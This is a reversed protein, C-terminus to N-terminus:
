LCLLIPCIKLSTKSFLCFFWCPRVSPIVSPRFSLRVPNLKYSWVIFDTPLFNYQRSFVFFSDHWPLGPILVICPMADQLVWKSLSQLRFYLCTVDFTESICGLIIAIFRQLYAMVQWFNNLSWACDYVIRHWMGYLSDNLNM